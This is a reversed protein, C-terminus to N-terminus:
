PTGAGNAEQPGAGDGGESAAGDGESEGSHEAAEEIAMRIKAEKRLEPEVMYGLARLQGLEMEDIEVEAPRGWTPEPTAAYRAVDGSLREVVEPQDAALDETEGPDSEVDYLEVRGKEIDQRFLRYRGEQVSLLPRPDQNTRGWTQDLFAVRQREPDAVSSEDGAAAAEILPVLSRGDSAALPPLGLLDLLTPWIDVNEVPTDVVIGEELRFPLTIILPVHTTETYLNQAHGEVGHEEFAEGHDSAIVIMTKEMLDERQLAAVITGVNSDVWRISNDYIDSFASGFQASDDYVYQHVDMMHLYLFFRKDGVNRLFEVAAWSLDNDTGVLKASSPNDQRLNSPRARNSPKYYLDFGQAFGFNPAVWGNRWIGVNWFGAEKMIEAPSQFSEPLGDPYRTIRHTTPYSGTWLSAMSCKTWTSQALTNAFRIGHSALTDMIPSTPREYGYGSLRDARLTDILIFVVNVDDRDALDGIEDAEGWRWNPTRIEIMQSLGLLILAVSAIGIWLRTNLLRGV